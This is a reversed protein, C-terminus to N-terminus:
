VYLIALVSVLSCHIAGTATGTLALPEHAWTIEIGEERAMFGHTQKIEFLTVKTNLYKFAASVALTAPFPKLRDAPWGAADQWM